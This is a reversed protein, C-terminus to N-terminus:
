IIFVQKVHNKHKIAYYYTYLIYYMIIFIVSLRYKIPKKKTKKNLILLFLPRRTITLEEENCLICWMIINIIVFYM